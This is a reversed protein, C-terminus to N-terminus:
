DCDLDRSSSSSYRARVYFHQVKCRIGSQIRSESQGKLSLLLTNHTRTSPPFHSNMFIPYVTSCMMTNLTDAAKEAPSSSIEGSWQHRISWTIMEAFSTHTSTLHAMKLQLKITVLLNEGKIKAWHWSLLLDWILTAEEAWSRSHSIHAVASKYHVHFVPWFDTKTATLWQSTLTVQWQLM